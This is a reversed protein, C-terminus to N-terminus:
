FLNCCGRKPEQYYILPVGFTEQFQSKIIDEVEACSEYGKFHSLFINSEKESTDRSYCGIQMQAYKNFERQADTLNNGFDVHKWENARDDALKSFITPNGSTGSFFLGKTHIKGEKETEVFIAHATSTRLLTLVAAGKGEVLLHASNLVSRYTKVEVEPEVQKVRAHFMMAIGRNKIINLETSNYDM